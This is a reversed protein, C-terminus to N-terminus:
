LPNNTDLSQPSSHKGIILINNSLSVIESLLANKAGHRYFRLIEGCYM